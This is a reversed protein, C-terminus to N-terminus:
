AAILGRLPHTERLEGTRYLLLYLPLSSGKDASATSDFPSIGGQLTLYNLLHLTAADAWQLDDLILILPHEAALANFYRAVASYLNRREAEPGMPEALPLDPLILRIEPAIKALDAASTGLVSRL